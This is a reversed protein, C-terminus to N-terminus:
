KILLMKKSLTRNEFRIAYIYFGSGVKEGSQDRGEWIFQYRGTQRNGHFYTKVLNGKLDYITIEVSGSEPIEYEIVTSPNFPNPYNQMLRFSKLINHLSQNNKIDTLGSFDIKEIDAIAYAVTTGDSLNVHLEYNQAYALSCFLIVCILFRRKEM